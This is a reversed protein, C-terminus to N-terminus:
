FSFKFGLQWSSFLEADYRENGTELYRYGAFISTHKLAQFTIRTHADLYSEHDGGTLIDPAYLIGGTIYLNRLIYFDLAGGLALGHMDGKGKILDDVDTQMWFVQAGLHTHFRGARGNNYLGFSAMTSTTDLKYKRDKKIDIRANDVNTHSLGSRITFSNSLAVDYFGQASEDSVVFELTDAVASTAYLLSAALLIRLSTM